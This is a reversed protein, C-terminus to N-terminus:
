LLIKISPAYVLVCVSIGQRKEYLLLSVFGSQHTMIIGEDCLKDLLKKLEERVSLPVRRVIYVVPFANQKRSILHEFKNTNGIKQTLVEPYREIIADLGSDIEINLPAFCIM